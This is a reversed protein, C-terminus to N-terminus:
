KTAVGILDRSWILEKDISHHAAELVNGAVWRACRRKLNRWGEDKSPYVGVTDFHQRLVQALSEKTFGAEHTFDVYREQPACIAAMNGVEMILRGGPVLAEKMLGIFDIIENKPLHPVMCRTVIAGYRGGRELFSKADDHVYIIGLKDQEAIEIAERSTDVGILSKFGLYHLWGLLHGTSSGLELIHATKNLRKFYPWYNANFFDWLWEKREEETKYLHSQHTRYYNM